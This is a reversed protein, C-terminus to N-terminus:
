GFCCCDFPMACGRERRVCVYMFLIGQRDDIVSVDCVHIYIYINSCVCLGDLCPVNEGESKGGGFGQVCEEHGDRGGGGGGLPLM